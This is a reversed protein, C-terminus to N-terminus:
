SHISTRKPQESTLTLVIKTRWRQLYLKTGPLKQFTEQISTLTTSQLWIVTLTSKQCQLLREVINLSLRPMISPSVMPRQRGLPKHCEQGSGSPRDTRSITLAKLRRSIWSQATIPTQRSDCTAEETAAQAFPAPSKMRYNFQEIRLEQPNAITQWRDKLSQDALFTIQDLRVISAALM